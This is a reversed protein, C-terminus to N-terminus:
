AQDIEQLIELLARKPDAANVIPRGIVLYNSGLAMAQGPTMVRQQDNASAGAPRVGPTVIIFKEGLEQRLLAIEHPSCVVGDLQTKNALVALKLVQDKTDAIIGIEDLDYSNHSTLVTVGIMLPKTKSTSVSSHAVQLMQSSGLTHLSFMWVDLKAIAKSARSITNPIDHLKLDLFIQFGMDMLRRVIDPGAAIFLELGVKLRCLEPSLKGAANIAQEANPLDLAVIIPSKKM